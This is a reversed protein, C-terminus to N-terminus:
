RRARALLAAPSLRGENKLWTVGAVAAGVVVALVYWLLVTAKTVDSADGGGAPVAGLQPTFEVAEATASSGGAPELAVQQVPAAPTPTVPAVFSPAGPSSPALSPGSSSSSPATTTATTTEIQTATGESVSGDVAPPAFSLQFAVADSAPKVILGINGTKGDVLAQVDATWTGDDGRTMPVTATDCEDKPADAMAGGAVPTWSASTPCVQIAALEAGAGGTGEVLRLSTGSAGGGTDILVAGVTLEGDPAAAVSIGGDPVTPPTPSRTWWGVQTVPVDARAAGPLVLVLAVGIVGAVFVRRRM